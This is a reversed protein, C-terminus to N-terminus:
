NRAALEPLAVEAPALRVIYTTGEVRDIEVLVGNAVPAGEATRAPATYRIGAAVYAIEGLGNAPIATIVEASTGGLDDVRVNSDSEVARTVRFMITAVGLALATAGGLALPLHLVTRSPGFASAGVLGLGGFAAIFTAIVTPSFVPFSVEGHADAGSPDGHDVGSHGLALSALTWTTGVAVCFWYAAIM